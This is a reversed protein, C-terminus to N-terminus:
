ACGGFTNFPHWHLMDGPAVSACDAAVIAMGDAQALPLLTASVGQGLRRLVPLGDADHRILCVPFVEARGPKRQWDFDARAPMEAFPQPAAGTLRALQPRLFMHYGVHVAMPNGPLGTVAAGNLSGFMVPKGPKLAVRWAEIQGGAACLAARIHDRGGMSVAGTTVILDYAGGLARFAAETAAADDPLIGLDHVEAGDQALLASLMPRNADKIHGPACDGDTVEDGTSFLAVRPRRTVTIGRVGNAALLGVHHPAIRTGAALLMQGAGQDSGARRINAGPAPPTEIHVKHGKDVCAEIMVVADAGRPLPAGTYIRLADGPPLDRPADGAAVTGAVPLCCRGALDGLRLAFGDMASNDFSPMAEDANISQAAIRGQAAALDVTEFQTIPQVQALAVQVADTHSLLTQRAALQDCDCGIKVSSGDM